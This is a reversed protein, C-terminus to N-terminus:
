NVIGYETIEVAVNAKFDVSPYVDKWENNKWIEDHFAHVKRGIGLYDCQAEQMKTIVQNAENTLQESLETNLRKITKREELHHHPYETVNLKLVVDVKVSLQGDQNKTINLARELNKVGVTVDDYLNKEDSNVNVKRTIYHSGKKSGDLLLLLISEDTNLKGTMQLGNFLGVGTLEAGNKSDLVKLTPIVADQGDDHVITLTNQLNVLPIVGEEMGSLLIGSLYDSILPMNETKVHLISKAEGEVIALNATLASLPSRFNTDLVSYIDYKALDESFFTVENKTAFLESGIKKDLESRSDRTNHGNASIITTNIPIKENSTGSVVAVTTTIIGTDTDIDLAQANILAVDKLLQEDWCGSLCLFLCSCIVFRILLRRM